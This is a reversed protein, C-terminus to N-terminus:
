KLPMEIDMDSVFFPHNLASEASIRKQPDKELMKMLLDLTKSPIKTYIEKGFTFDCARNQAL